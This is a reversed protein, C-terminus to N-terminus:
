CAGRAKFVEPLTKAIIKLDLWLSRERIYQLDLEVRRTYSLDSRGSVQWLGTLGPKVSHLLETQDGFRCLEEMLVPRPGVWHMDGKLINFLQPLEDLSSRRLFHGFKTVRPDASLKGREQWDHQREPHEAIVAALETEAGPRMSRFKYLRFPKGHLGLRESVHLVPGPSSLKVLLALLLFLPLCLLIAFGALFRGCLVCLQEVKDTM